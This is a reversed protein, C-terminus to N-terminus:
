GFQGPTRIELLDNSFRGSGFRSFIFLTWGTSLLTEVLLSDRKHISSFIVPCEVAKGQEQFFIGFREQRGICVEMASVAIQAKGATL